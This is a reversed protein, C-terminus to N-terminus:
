KRKLTDMLKNVMGALDRAATGKVFFSSSKPTNLGDEIKIKKYAAKLQDCAEDIKGSEILDGATEIMNRFANLRNEATKDSENAKTIKDASRKKDSKEPVYGILDGNVVSDNFLILIKDITIEQTKGTGSLIVKETNALLPVISLTSQCYGPSLPSYTITIQGPIPVRNPPVKPSVSFGCDKELNELTLEIIVDRDGNTDIKLIVPDSSEGVEVEKFDYSDIVTVDAHSLSPLFLVGTILTV